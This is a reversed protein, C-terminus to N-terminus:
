VPSFFRKEPLYTDDKKTSTSQFFMSFNISCQVPLFTYIKPVFGIDHSSKELNGIQIEELM